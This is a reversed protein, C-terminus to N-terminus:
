LRGLWAPLERISGIIDEERVGAALWMERTVVNEENAAVFKMGANVACIRDAVLGDGVYVAEERSIGLARELPGLILELGYPSPKANEWGVDEVCVVRTFYPDLGYRHLLERTHLRPRSTLAYLDVGRGRMAKLTPATGCFPVIEVIPQMSDYIGYVTENSLQPFFEERLEAFHIGWKVTVARRLEPTTSIGHRALLVHFLDISWAVSRWVTGDM